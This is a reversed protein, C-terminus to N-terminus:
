VLCQIEFHLQGDKFVFDLGDHEKIFDILLQFKTGDSLFCVKHPDLSSHAQTQSVEQTLMKLNKRQAQERWKAFFDTQRNDQPKIDLKNSIAAIWLLKEEYRMPAQLHLRTYTKHSLAKTITALIEAQEISLEFLDEYAIEFFELHQSIYVLHKGISIKIGDKHSKMSISGLEKCMDFLAEFPSQYVSLTITRKNSEQLAKKRFLSELEMNFSWAILAILGKIRM